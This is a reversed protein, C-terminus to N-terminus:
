KTQKEKHKLLLFAIAVIIIANLIAAITKAVIWIQRRSEKRKLGDNEVENGNFHEAVINRYKTYTSGKKYLYAFLSDLKEISSLSM